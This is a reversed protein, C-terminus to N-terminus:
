RSIARCARMEAFVEQAPRTRGAAVDEDGQLIAEREDQEQTMDAESRAKILSAAFAFEAELAGYAAIFKPDQKWRTFSEHASISRRKM